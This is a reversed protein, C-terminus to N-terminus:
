ARGLQQISPYMSTPSNWIYKSFWPDSASVSTNSGITELLFLGGPPLCRHAITLYDRYHRHGVHEFMGLSVACDFSGEIQRYDHLRIEIPLGRCRERALELQSQSITVGVVSVGYHEAAYKALSGWGCGIDLMRQGP